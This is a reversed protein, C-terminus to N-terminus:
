KKNDILISHLIILERKEPNRFKHKQYSIISNIGSQLRSNSM